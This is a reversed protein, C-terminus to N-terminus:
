EYMFERSYFKIKKQKFEKKEKRVKRKFDVSAEDVEKEDVYEEIENLDVKPM